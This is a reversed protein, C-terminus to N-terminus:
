CVLPVARRANSLRSGRGREKGGASSRCSGGDGRGSGVAMVIVVMVVVVSGGSGRALGVVVVPM